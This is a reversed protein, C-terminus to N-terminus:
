LQLSGQAARLKEISKRELAQNRRTLPRDFWVCSLRRTLDFMSEWLGSRTHFFHLLLYTIVASYIQLRVANESFGFFRKLKLHQKIWKFFLEIQWRQKYLEALEEPPSSMDNTILILPHKWGDVKVTIRRVPTGQFANQRRGFQVIEDASVSTVSLPHSHAHSLQVNANSKLRTVFYAGAVHLEHWWGYDCYGKDFVYTMNPQIPMRLADTMDNVNVPTINIYTPALQNPDFGTHVKLGQTIRTKNSLTWEDFGPGRLTISTSDILSIMRGLQRRQQGGVCKLMHEAAKQFPSVSRKNLADSLTSRPVSRANLHYQHEDIVQSMATLSRLSSAQQLHGLLLTVLLDRSTCRKAYRDAQSDKVEKQFVGAPFATLLRGINTSSFM